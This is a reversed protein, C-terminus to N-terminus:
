EYMLEELSIVKGESYERRAEAISQVYSKNTLAILDEFYEDMAEKISENIFIKLEDATFNQVQIDM